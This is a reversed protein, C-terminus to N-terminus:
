KTNCYVPLRRSLPPSPRPLRRMAPRLPRSPRRLRSPRSHTTSGFHTHVHSSSLPRPPSSSAWTRDTDHTQVLAIHTRQSRGRLRVAEPRDHISYKAGGADAVKKMVTAPDLDRDSRANIQM